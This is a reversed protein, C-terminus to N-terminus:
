DLCDAPAEATAQEVGVHDHDDDTTSISQPDDGFTEQGVARAELLAVQPGSGVTGVASSELCM